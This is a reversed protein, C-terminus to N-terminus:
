VDQMVNVRVHPGLKGDSSESLLADHEDDTGPMKLQKLLLERHDAVM